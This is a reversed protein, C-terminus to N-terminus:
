YPLAFVDFCCAESTKNFMRFGKTIICCIFHLRSYYRDFASILQRECQAYRFASGMNNKGM